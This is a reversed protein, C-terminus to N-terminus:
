AAASSGGADMWAQLKSRSLRVSRGIKWHVGRPLLGKRLARYFMPVSKGVIPAAEEATIIDDAGSFILVSPIETVESPM